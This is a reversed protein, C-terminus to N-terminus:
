YWLRMLLKQSSFIWHPFFSGLRWVSPYMIYHFMDVREMSLIVFKKDNQWVPNSNKPHKIKCMKGPQFCATAKKIIMLGYLWIQIYQSSETWSSLIYELKSVWVIAELSWTQVLQYVAACHNSEICSLFYCSVVDLYLM